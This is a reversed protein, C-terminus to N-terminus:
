PSVLHEDSAARHNGPPVQFFSPQFSFGNALTIDNLAKLFLPAFDTFKKQFIPEGYYLPEPVIPSDQPQHLRQRKHARGPPTCPTSLITSSEGESMTTSPRTYKLLSFFTGIILFCFIEDGAHHSFAFLAQQNVQPLHNSIMEISTHRPEPTDWGEDFALPKIELWFILRSKRYLADLNGCYQLFTILAAFDPSRRERYDKTGKAKGHVFFPQPHCAFTADGSPHESIACYDTLIRGYLAYLPAEIQNFSSAHWVLNGIDTFFGRRSIAIM